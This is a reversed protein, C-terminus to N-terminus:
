YIAQQFIKVNKVLLNELDGDQIINDKFNEYFSPMSFSSVVRGGFFPISELAMKLVMAGGRPGPSAAMVMIPRDAWFQMDIRSNWDWLNKFAASYGGNHEALSLIVGDASHILDRFKLANEPIGDDAQLDPSYLPLIFDNLDLIRLDINDLKNATYGVFIKNISNKSNSGAFAIVKKM